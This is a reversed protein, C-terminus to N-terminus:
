FRGIWGAVGGGNALTATPMSRPAKAARLWLYAGVGAAIGGGIMLAVGPASVLRAPQDEGIPPPDKTLQFALGAGAAVVGAGAVVGPVFYRRDGGAVSGGKRRLRVSVLLDQNEIADVTRTETEYGDRQLI